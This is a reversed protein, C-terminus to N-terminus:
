YISSFKFKEGPKFNRSVSNLLHTFVGALSELKSSLLKKEPFISIMYFEGELSSLWPLMLIPAIMFWLDLNPCLIPPSSVTVDQTWSSSGHIGWCVLLAVHNHTNRFCLNLSPQDARLQTWNPETWDSLLTESKTVGHVAACWAERDM